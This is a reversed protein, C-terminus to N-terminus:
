RAEQQDQGKALRPFLKLGNEYYIKRKVDEAFEYRKFEEGFDLVAPTAAYPFDSGYLIHDAPFLDLAYDITDKATSLALDVYFTRVDQLFEAPSKPHPDMSAPLRGCTLKVARDVLFPLTGGAHSLIIKVNPNERKRNKVVLDMATRCTEHPYDLVPQPLAPDVLRTDTTHTPHVFVVAKRANLEAWVPKFLDYGLYYPGDGYRTFVTVGDCHLEDYCYRIEALAGEVDLLSPLAAFFGFSQPKSDRLKAAYINVERALTRQSAYGGAVEVGPATLSLIATKIGIQHMLSQSAEPSWDPTAWGSVDGGAAKVANAYPEPVFHHHTDILAAM